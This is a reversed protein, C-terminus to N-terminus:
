LGFPIGFKYGCASVSLYVALMVLSSLGMGGPLYVERYSRYHFLQAWAERGPPPALPPEPCSM